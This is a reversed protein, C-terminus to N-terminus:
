GFWEGLPADTLWNENNVWNPGDTAEYLAVLAARGPNETVEVTFVARAELRDPDRATVTVTAGGRAVPRLWVMWHGGARASCCGAVVVSTDSGEADFWLSDGDPDTFTGALADVLVIEADDLLSQAPIEGSVEPARNVAVAVPARASLGAPDSATVTVTAAGGTGGGTLRVTDGAMTASVVATDASAAAFTLADGDPDTFYTGVAVAVAEGPGPLRQAPISDATAQPARNAPPAPPEPEVTAPDPATADGSCAAALVLAALKQWHRM